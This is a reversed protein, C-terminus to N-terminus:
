SSQLIIEPEELQNGKKASNNQMGGIRGGTMSRMQTIKSNSVGGPTLSITQKSENDSAQEKVLLTTMGMM